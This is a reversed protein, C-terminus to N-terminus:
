PTGFFSSMQTLYFTVPLRALSRIMKADDGWTSSGRGHKIDNEKHERQHEKGHGKDEGAYSRMSDQIGGANLERWSVGNGPSGDSCNWFGCEALQM